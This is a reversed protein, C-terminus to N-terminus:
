LKLEIYMKALQLITKLHVAKSSCSVLKFANSQMHNFTHRWQTLSRLTLSTHFCDM